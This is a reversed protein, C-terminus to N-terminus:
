GVDDRALDRLVAADRLTVARLRRALEVLEQADATLAARELLRAAQVIAVAGVNGAAGVVSHAEIQVRARDERLSAQQITDIRLDVEGLFLAVVNHFLKSDCGGWMETIAALDIGSETATDHPLCRLIARHLDDAVIPKGVWGAAGAVPGPQGSALLALWPVGTHRAELFVPTRCEPEAIVLDWPQGAEAGRRADPNFGWGRLLTRLLLRMTPSACDALVFRAAPDTLLTAPSHM